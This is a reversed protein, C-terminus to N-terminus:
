MKQITLGYTGFSGADVTHRLSFNILEICTLAQGTGQVRGEGYAPSAAFNSYHWAGQRAVTVDGTDPNVTFTVNYPAGGAAPNPHDFPDVLVFENEGTGAIIEFEDDGITTGFGDDVITYTGPIVSLDVEPCKITLGLDLEQTSSELIVAGDVSVLELVLIDSADPVGAAANTTVTFDATFEGAPIVPTLTSITYYEPDLTSAVTDVRIVVNRDEDSLTAVGVKLVNKTDEAPNFIINQNEIGNFGAIPRSDNVDITPFDNDECSTVLGMALIFLSLKYILNKM